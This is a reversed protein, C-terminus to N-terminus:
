LYVPYIYTCVTSVCKWGEGSSSFPIAAPKYFAADVETILIIIFISFFHYVYYFQYAINMIQDFYLLCEFADIYVIKILIVYIHNRSKESGRM